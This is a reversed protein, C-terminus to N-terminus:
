LDEKTEEMRLERLRAAEEVEARMAAAREDRLEKEVEAEIEAQLAAEKEETTLPREKGRDYTYVM